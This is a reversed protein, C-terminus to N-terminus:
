SDSRGWKTANLYGCGKRYNTPSIQSVFGFPLSTSHRNQVLHLSSVIWPYSEHHTNCYETSFIHSIIPSSWAKNSVLLLTSIFHRHDWINYSLSKDFKCVMKATTDILTRQLLSIGVLYEVIMKSSCWPHFSMFITPPTMENNEKLSLFTHPYSTLFIHGHPM